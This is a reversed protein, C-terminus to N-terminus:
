STSSRGAQYGARTKCFRLLDRQLRLRHRLEKATKRDPANAIKEPMEAIAQELERALETPGRLPRSLGAAAAGSEDAGASGPSAAGEREHLPRAEM